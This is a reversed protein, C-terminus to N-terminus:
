LDELILTTRLPGRQPDYDVRGSALWVPSDDVILGAHNAADQASKWFADTDWRRQGKPVRIQLSLRRKGTARVVPGAMRAASWLIDRDRRKLRISAKVSRNLENLAAPRYGEITIWITNGHKIVPGFSIGPELLVLPQQVSGQKLAEDLTERSVGNKLLWAEDVKM